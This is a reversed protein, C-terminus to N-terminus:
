RRMGEARRIAANTAGDVMGRIRRMRGGIEAGVARIVDHRGHRAAAEILSVLTRLTHGVGVGSGSGGSNVGSM